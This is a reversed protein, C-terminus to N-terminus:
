LGLRARPRFAALPLAALSDPRSRPAPPLCPIDCRVLAAPSSPHRSACMYERSSASPSVANPPFPFPAPPLRRWGAVRVAVSPCSAEASARRTSRASRRGSNRCRRYAVFVGSFVHCYESAVASGHREFSNPAAAGSCTRFRFGSLDALVRGSAQNARQRSRAPPWKPLSAFNKRSSYGCLMRYRRM